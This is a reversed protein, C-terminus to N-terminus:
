SCRSRSPSSSSRDRVAEIVVFGPPAGPTTKIEVERRRYRVVDQMEALV